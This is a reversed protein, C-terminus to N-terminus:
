DLIDEFCDIVEAPKSPTLIKKPPPPWITPKPVYQLEKPKFGRFKFLKQLFSAWM